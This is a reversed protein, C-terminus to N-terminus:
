ACVSKVIYALMVGTFLTQLFMLFYLTRLYKQAQGVKLAVALNKSVLDKNTKLMETNVRILENNKDALRSNSDALRLNADKVTSIQSETRVREQILFINFLVKFMKHGDATEPVVDFLTQGHENRLHVNVTYANAITELLQYQGMSCIIHLITQGDAYISDFTVTPYDSPSAVIRKILEMDVLNDTSFTYYSGIHKVKEIVKAANNCKNEFDVHFSSMYIKPNLEPCIKEDLMGTLIEDSTFRQNKRVSLFYCIGKEIESYSCQYQSM